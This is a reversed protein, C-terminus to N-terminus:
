LRSCRQTLERDVSLPYKGRQHQRPPFVHESLAATIDSNMKMSRNNKAVLVKGIVYELAANAVSDKFGYIYKYRYGSFEPLTMEVVCRM